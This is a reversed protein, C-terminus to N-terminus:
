ENQKTQWLNIRGVRFGFIKNEIQLMLCRTQISHWPKELGLSIDQTSIPTASKHILKLINRRLEDEKKNIVMNINHPLTSLRRKYINGHIIRKITRHIAYKVLKNIKRVPLNILKTYTGKM